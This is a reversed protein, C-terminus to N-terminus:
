KSARFQELPILPMGTPVSMKLQDATFPRDVTEREKVLIIARKGNLNALRLSKPLHPQEEDYGLSLQWGGSQQKWEVPAGNAAVELQGALNGSLEYSASGNPLMKASAPVNGFVRAFRGNLLDALQMLDFPVPVGIKLLPRNSGQHFYAKNERPMYVLFDDGEEAIKAVIAGVGAMVDLRMANEGNGWLLATVRRTDGEEGFRMSLQLRYPGSATASAAEMESWIKATEGEGAPQLPARACAALFLSLILIVAKKM